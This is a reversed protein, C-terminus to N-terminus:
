PLLFLPQSAPSFRLQWVRVQPFLENDTPERKQQKRRWFQVKEFKSKKKSFWLVVALIIDQQVDTQLGKILKFLAPSIGRNSEM